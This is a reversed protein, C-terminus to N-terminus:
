RRAAQRRRSPSTGPAPAPASRLSLCGIAAAALHAAGIVALGAATARGDLLVGALLAGVSAVGLKASAGVTFVTARLEPPSRDSRTAFLGVLLPGDVLGLLFAGGLLVPWSAASMALLVCGLVAVSALVAREPHAFPRRRTMALSGALGGVASVTLAIGADAPRRGVAETAAVLAFSLGGLAAFALTTTLTASRLPGDAAILRVAAAITRRGPTRSTHHPQATVTLGLSTLAIAAGGVGLVVLAWAPSILLAVATVVAPGGLGAVNYALSDWAFVRTSWAGRGGIASIGGNLLPEVGSMALAGLLPVVLPARGLTTALVITAGATVAGAIRLLRWPDTARDLVPGLLPGTVLQPFTAAAVLVGAQATSGTRETAILVLALALGENTLRALSATAVFRLLLTNM